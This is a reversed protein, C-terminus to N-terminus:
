RASVERTCEPPRAARRPRLCHVCDEHRERAQRGPLAQLRAAAQRAPLHPRSVTRLTGQRGRSQRHRARLAASCRLEGAPLWAWCSCCACGNPRGTEARGSGLERHAARRDDCPLVAVAVQWCCTACCETTCNYSEGATFAQAAQLHLLSSASFFIYNQRCRVLKAASSPTRKATASPRAAPSNQALRRSRLTPAACASHVTCRCPSCRMCYMEISDCTRQWEAGQAGVQTCVAFRLSVEHLMYM